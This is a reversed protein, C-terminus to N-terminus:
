GENSLTWSNGKFVLVPMECHGVADGSNMQNRYSMHYNSLSIAHQTM